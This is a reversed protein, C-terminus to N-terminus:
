CAGKLQEPLMIKWDTNRIKDLKEFYDLWETSHETSLSNIMGVAGPCDSISYLMDRAESALQEPLYKLQLVRGGYSAPEIERIFIQSPDGQNGTQLNHKWWNYFDPMNFINHIGVIADVEILLCPGKLQQFRQILDTTESWKGPYRTYEFTTDCGDLSIFLRVWRVRSWLEIVEDSPWVTGNTSYNLTVQELRGISDLHKMILLHDENLLPEGGDFHIQEVHSLDLHQWSQEPKKRLKVKAALPDFLHYHKNWSSSLMSSCSICQLNCTLGQKLHLKKIRAPGDDWWPEGLSRERENAIHGPIKCYPSCDAPIQTKSEERLKQLYPHDFDIKEAFEREQWCCMGLRTRGDAVADILFGQKYYPCFKDSDKSM